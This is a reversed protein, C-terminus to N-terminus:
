SSRKEHSANILVKDWPNPDNAEHDASGFTLVIDGTRNIVAKDVSCGANRAARLARTLDQQRFMCPGRSM